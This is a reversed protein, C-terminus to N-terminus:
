TKAEIEMSKISVKVIWEKLDEKPAYGTSSAYVNRGKLIVITPISMVKFGEALEYEKQTDVKFFNVKGNYESGLEEFIPKLMQCPGCWDAYFDIVTLKNANVVESQFSGMTLNKTTM